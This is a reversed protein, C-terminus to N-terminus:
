LILYAFQKKFDEKFIKKTNDLNERLKSNKPLLCDFLRFFQELNEQFIKLEQQIEQLAERIALADAIFFDFPEKNIFQQYVEMCYDVTVIDGTCFINENLNKIRIFSCILKASHKGIDLVLQPISIQENLTINRYYRMRIRAMDLLFNLFLYKKILASHVLNM